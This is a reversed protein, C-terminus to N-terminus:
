NHQQWLLELVQHKESLSVCHLLYQFERSRLREGLNWFTISGISMTEKSNEPAGDDSFQFVFHNMNDNFWVLKNLLHPVRLHLDIIMFVLGTVSRTVGPVNPVQVIKGIDLSQVFKRVSEDSISNISVKVDKGLLKMDRPVWVEQNADFM